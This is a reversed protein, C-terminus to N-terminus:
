SGKKKRGEANIVRRLCRITGGIKPHKKKRPDGLFSVNGGRLCRKLKLLGDYKNGWSTSRLRPGKGPSRCVGEEKKIAGKIV